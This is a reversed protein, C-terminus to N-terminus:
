NSELARIGPLKKGALFELMAGGGTSVHDIFESVKASDIVEETEGGGAIGYAKGRARAAFVQALSKSGFAFKPVEILGMPGNWVITKAMRIYEAFKTITQPGIDYIIENKRIQSVLRVSAQDAPSNAVVVDLPLIIKEKFNRELELANHVDVSKSEGVNYGRAKLFSNALAGGVLIHSAHKALNHITAVKDSIKVGGMLIVLPKQPNQLVKNLSQIEKIFSLGAYAKLKLAVGYTSAEMRHSVSFAENVYLDGYDALTDIFSSDNQEEGPYFRINELFLIDGPKLQNTLFSYDHKTIDSQLFYIHRVPYQPLNDSVMVVKTDLLEALKEATPFLSKGSEWGSPRDLHSVLVIKAGEKILHKITPLADKIRADDVVEFKETHINKKIPVDFGVRVIVRRGTVKVSTISKIM